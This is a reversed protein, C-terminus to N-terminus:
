IGELFIRECIVTNEKGKVEYYDVGKMKDYKKVKVVEGKTKFGM